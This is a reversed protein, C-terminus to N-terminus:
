VDEGSEPPNRTEIGYPVILLYVGMFPLFIVTKTEIGYPVILLFASYTKITVDRTEIGYPVILLKIIM